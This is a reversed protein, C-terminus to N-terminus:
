VRRRGGRAASRLAAASRPPPPTSPRREAAVISAIAARVEPQRLAALLLEPFVDAILLVLDDQAAADQRARVARILRTELM